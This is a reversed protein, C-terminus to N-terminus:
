PPHHMHNPLYHNRLTPPIGTGIALHPSVLFAWVHFLQRTRRVVSFRSENVSVVRRYSPAKRVVGFENKMFHLM